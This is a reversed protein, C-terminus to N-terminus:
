QFDHVRQTRVYKVLCIVGREVYPLIMQGSKSFSQLRIKIWRQNTAIM